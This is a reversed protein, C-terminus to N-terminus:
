ASRTQYKRFIAETADEIQSLVGSSRAQKRRNQPPPPSPDKRVLTKTATPASAM